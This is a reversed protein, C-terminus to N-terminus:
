EISIFDKQLCFINKNVDIEKKLPFKMLDLNEKILM